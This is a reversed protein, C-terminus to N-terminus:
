ASSTANNFALKNVTDSDLGTLINPSALKILAKKLENPSLVGDIELKGTPDANSFYSTVSSVLDLAMAPIPMVSSLKSALSDEVEAVSLEAGRGALAKFDETGYISLLYALLGVIHPSAM